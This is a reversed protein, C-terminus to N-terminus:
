FPGENSELNFKCAMQLADTKVGSVSSRIPTM